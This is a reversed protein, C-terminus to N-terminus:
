AFVSDALRKLMPVGRIETEFLPVIARVQGDFKQWVTQMHEQQMAVRHKV